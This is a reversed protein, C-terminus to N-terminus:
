GGVGASTTEPKYEMDSFWEAEFGERTVGEPFDSEDIYTYYAGDSDRKVATYTASATQFEPAGTSPQTQGGVNSAFAYSGKYYRVYRYSGDSKKVRWAVGFYPTKTDSVTVMGNEEQKLGRWMADVYPPVDANTLEHGISELYAVSEYAGDDADFVENGGTDTPAIETTGPLSVAEGYTTGEKTDTEVPFFTYRSVGITPLPKKNTIPM